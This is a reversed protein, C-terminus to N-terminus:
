NALLHEIRHDVDAVLAVLRDQNVTPHYRTLMHEAQFASPGLVELDTGTTLLFGDPHFLGPQSGNEHTGVPSGAISAGTATPRIKGLPIQLRVYVMPM